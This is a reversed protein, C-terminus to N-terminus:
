PVGSSGSTPGLTSGVLDRMPSLARLAEVERTMVNVAHDVQEVTTSRGLGFRVSAFARQDSVGLAKLVFSPTLTESSCASGSSVALEHRVNMMLAQSEVDDISINLNHALRREMSGNVSVGGVGERLGKLLRDRLQRQREPEGSHVVQASLEAAAGLGVIMPVPLTGP